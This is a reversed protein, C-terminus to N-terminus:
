DEWVTFTVGEIRAAACVNLVDIVREYKAKPATSITLLAQTKNSDALEKFRKLTVALSSLERDAPEGFIQENMLVQGNAQVQVIQEDFTKIPQNQSIKGPLKINLENETKIAGVTTMFFLILIFVIDVMPAIQFGLGQEQERHARM